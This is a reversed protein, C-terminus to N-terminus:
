SLMHWGAAHEGLRLVDRSVEASVKDSHGGTIEVVRAFRLIILEQQQIQRSHDAVISDSKSVLEGLDIAGDHATRKMQQVRCHSDPTHLEDFRALLLIDVDGPTRWVVFTQRCAEVMHDLAQIEMRETLFKDALCLGDQAVQDM